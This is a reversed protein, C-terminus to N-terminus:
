QLKQGWAIQKEAAQEVFEFGRDSPYVSQQFANNFRRVVPKNWAAFRNEISVTVTFSDGGQRIKANDMRGRHIIAPDAVLLRTTPDLYGLYLTGRRGQFHENLVLAGMDGPINSLTLSLTSRSLDSPEGAASVGGFQGIGNYTDGGFTLTGLASHALVNGSDFELKAFLVPYLTDQQSATITAPDADRTGTV